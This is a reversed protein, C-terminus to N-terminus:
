ECENFGGPTAIEKFSQVEIKADAQSIGLVAEITKERNFAQGRSYITMQGGSISGINVCATRSGVTLSYISPCYYISGSDYGVYDPCNIYDNVRIIADQAGAEAVGLAEISLQESLLSQGFLQSIILGAVVLELIVGAILLVVPLASVGGIKAEERMM